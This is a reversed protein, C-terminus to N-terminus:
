RKAHTEMSRKNRVREVEQNNADNINKKELGFHDALLGFGRCSTYGCSDEMVSKTSWFGEVVAEGERSKYYEVKVICEPGEPYIRM